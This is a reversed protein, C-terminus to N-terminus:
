GPQGPQGPQSSSASEIEPIAALLAAVGNADADENLYAYCLRLLLELKTDPKLHAAQEIQAWAAIEALIEDQRERAVDPRFAFTILHQSM